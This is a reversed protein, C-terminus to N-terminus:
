TAVGGKRCAWYVEVASRAPICTTQSFGIANRTALTISRAGAQRRRVGADFVRIRHAVVGRLRSVVSRTELSPYLWSLRGSSRVRREIVDAVRRVPRVCEARPYRMDM